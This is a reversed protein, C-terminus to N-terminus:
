SASETQAKENPLEMVLYKCHPFQRTAEASWQCAQNLDNFTMKKRGYAHDAMWWIDKRRPGWFKIGWQPKPVLVNGSKTPIVRIHMDNVWLEISRTSIPTDEMTDPAMGGGTPRHGLIPFGSAM